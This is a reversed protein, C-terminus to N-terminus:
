GRPKWQDLLEYSKGTLTLHAGPPPAVHLYGEQVLWDVLSDVHREPRPADAFWAARDRNQQVQLLIHRLLPEDEPTIVVAEHRGLCVDCRGCRVPSREGFYSLLFHRRCTVSRAYRLMDDLRSLARRKARRVALDDVPLRQARPEGLQVRLSAEPSRWDLLGREALFALGRPLRERPVGTRAALLRLDVEWWSSFADAHVTRLLDRVFAALSAKQLGDAYRRVAEAPQKFRLLGQHRKPPLVQWVEQRALLDIATEVRGPAAKVLRAVAEVDVTVPADPLSGVPVQALNCV